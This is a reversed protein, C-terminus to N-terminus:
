NSVSNVKENRSRFQEPSLNMQKFYRWVTTRGIGLMESMRSVNGNCYQAAQLVARKELEGLPIIHGERLLPNLDSEGLPLLEPLHSPTILHSPSAQVAARTLVSELERVNGPWHYAKLLTLTERSSILSHGVQRSLRQLIQEILLDLDQQRARLAPLVIEFSSLRYLLDARFNGERVLHELQASSSAIIRVDVEIPKRSIIKQIIGMELFNLLVSQAELPLADVDQFFLTGGSALEFKSTQPSSENNNRDGGLLEQMVLESPVASCPFIVFPSQNRQSHFHIARALLNKGTGAEGRILVCGRAAAASRAMRRVRRMASSEGVLNQLDFTPSGVQRQVFERLSHVPRLVAIAMRLGHRGLIYQLSLLCSIPEGAATLHVELDNIPIQKQLSDLVQRPLRVFAELKTGLMNGPNVNLIRAATPNAHLIIGDRNWVLIGEQISSIIANLGTLQNNQEELLQDAQRQAEIAKAAAMVLGLSHPHSRGRPTIIGLSGILKGTTDFVPAAACDFDHLPQRFHEYGEVVVPTRELLSLGIANTGIEGEALLTGTSIGLREMATMINADGLGDLLYGVNNAFIVASNSGEIYQYVDEMVPRSIAMIDFNSVQMSLLNSNSLHPPKTPSYPDVRAWCREWSAAILPRVLSLLTHNTVFAIWAQHFEESPRLGM